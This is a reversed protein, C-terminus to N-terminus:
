KGGGGSKGGGGGAHFLSVFAIRRSAIKMLMSECFGTLKESIHQVLLTVIEIKDECLTVIKDGM